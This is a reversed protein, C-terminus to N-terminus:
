SSQYNLESMVPDFLITPSGIENEPTLVVSKKLLTGVNRMYGLIADFQQEGTVERPDIDVEIQTATFSHSKLAVPGIDIYLAIAKTQSVQSAAEFTSPVDSDLGDIACSLSYSWAPLSKLFLNWDKATTELVYIDLWAGDFEFEATCEEWKM